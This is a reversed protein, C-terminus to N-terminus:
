RRPRLVVTWPGAPGDDHRLARWRWAAREMCATLDEVGLSDDLIHVDTVRTDAITLTLRIRGSIGPRGRLASEYCARFRGQLAVPLADGHLSPEPDGFCDAGCTPEDPESPDPGPVLPAQLTGDHGGHPGPELLPDALTLDQRSGRFRSRLLEIPPQDPTQTADALLEADDTGDAGSSRRLRAIMQEQVARSRLAAERVARENPAVHPDPTDTPPAEPEREVVREVVRPAPEVPEDPVHDASADSVSEPLIVQPREVLLHQWGPEPPNPTLAVGLGALTGLASFLVLWALFPGDDPHVLPTRVTGVRPATRENSRATM